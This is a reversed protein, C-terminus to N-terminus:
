SLKLSIVGFKYSSLSPHIQNWIHHRLICSFSNLGEYELFKRLFCDKTSTIVQWSGAFGPRASTQPNNQAGFFQYIYFGPKFGAQLQNNEFGMYNDWVSYLQFVFLYLGLYMITPFSIFAFIHCFQYQNCHHNLCELSVCRHM